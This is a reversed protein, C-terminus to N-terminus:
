FSKAFLFLFSSGVQYLIGVFDQLKVDYNITFFQFGGSWSTYLALIKM